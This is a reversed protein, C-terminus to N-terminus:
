PNDAKMEFYFPPMALPLCSMRYSRSYSSEAVPLLTSPRPHYRRQGVSSVGEVYLSPSRYSRNYRSVAELCPARSIGTFPARPLLDRDRIEHHLDLLHRLWPAHDVRERNQRWQRHAEIGIRAWNIWFLGLDTTNASGLAESVEQRARALELAPIEPHATVFLLPRPRSPLDWAISSDAYADSLHQILYHGLQSRGGIEHQSSHLKAEVLLAISGRQKASELLVFVDPECGDKFTPWFRFRAVDLDDLAIAFRSLYDPFAQRNEDIAHHLVPLIGVSPPLYRYAGFVDATLVDEYRQWAIERVDSAHAAVTLKGKRGVIGM